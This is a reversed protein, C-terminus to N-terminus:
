NATPQEAPLITLLEQPGKTKVLKPGLKEVAEFLTPGTVANESTDAWVHQFSVEFDYEGKLGTEDKVPLGTFNAITNVQAYAIGPWEIFDIVKHLL